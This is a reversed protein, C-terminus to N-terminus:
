RSRADERFVPLWGHAKRDDGLGIWRLDIANGQGHLAQFVAQAVAAVVNIHYAWPLLLVAGTGGMLHQDATCAQRTIGAQTKAQGGGQPKGPLPLLL